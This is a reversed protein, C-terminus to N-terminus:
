RARRGNSRGAAMERRALAHVRAPIADSLLMAATSSPSRLKMDAYIKLAVYLLPTVRANIRKSRRQRDDNKM